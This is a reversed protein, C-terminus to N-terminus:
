SRQPSHGSLGLLGARILAGATMPLSRTGMKEFVRKRRAEVTRLAIGLRGAIIKNEKGDLMLKLVELEGPALAELRRREILAVAVRRENEVSVEFAQKIAADLRERETPWELVDVAGCRMAAVISRTATFESLYIVALASGADFISQLLRSPQQPDLNLRAVLCGVDPLDNDAVFPRYSLQSGSRSAVKAAIEMVEAAVTETLEHTRISFSNRM